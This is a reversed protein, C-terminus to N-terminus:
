LFFHSSDTLNSFDLTAEGLQELQEISLGSIQTQIEPPIEGVRRKLLRLILAAQGQQFGQQLGEQM